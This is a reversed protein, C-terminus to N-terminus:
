ALRGSRGPEIMTPDDDGQSTCNLRKTVPWERLAAEPAPKLVEKGISDHLWGDFHSPDFLMPMRDHYPEMLETVEGVVILCCWKAPRMKGLEPCEPLNHSRMQEAIARVPDRVPTKSPM